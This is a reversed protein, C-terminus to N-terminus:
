TIIKLLFLYVVLCARRGLTTLGATKNETSNKQTQNEAVILHIYEKIGYKTIMFQSPVLKEKVNFLVTGLFVCPQTCM